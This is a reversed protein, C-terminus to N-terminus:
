RARPLLWGSDRPNAWVGDPEPFAFHLHTAKGDIVRLNDFEPGIGPLYSTFTIFYDTEPLYEAATGALAYSYVSHLKWGREDALRLLRRAMEAENVQWLGGEVHTVWFGVLPTGVPVGDPCLLPQPQVPRPEECPVSTLRILAALASADRAEIAAIIADVEASGTRTGQPYGAAPPSPTQTPEPTHAQVTRCKEDCEPTPTLTREPVSTAAASSTVQPTEAPAGGDGVGCAGLSLAVVVM